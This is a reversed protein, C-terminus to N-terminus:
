EPYGVPIVYLPVYDEKLKMIANIKSDEFAGIPVAGLGLAVAELLINQCAHGAELHVYRIGREGYKVTTRDYVATIVFNIDAEAVSSQYLCAEYLRQRLDDKNMKMLINEAPIYHFLGDKKIVFIDLPYLAGASPATRFGSNEKTIGQAAWLLQSIKEIEIEKNRFDRISRRKFLSEELSVTGSLAPEPLSVEEGSIYKIDSEMTNNNETIQNSSDDIITWENIRCGPILLTAFFIFILFLVIILEPHIKTINRNVPNNKIFDKKVM